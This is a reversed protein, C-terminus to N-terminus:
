ARGDVHAADDIVEVRDIRFSQNSHNEQRRVTRAGTRIVINVHQRAHLRGAEVGSAGERGGQVSLGALYSDLRATEQGIDQSMLEAHIPDMQAALVAHTAGARDQEVALRQEETVFSKTGIAVHYRVGAVRRAKALQKLFESGPLLDDGAEGLAEGV